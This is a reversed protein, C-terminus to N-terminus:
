VCVICLVFCNVVKTPLSEPIRVWLPWVLILPSSVAYCNDGLIYLNNGQPHVTNAEIHPSL